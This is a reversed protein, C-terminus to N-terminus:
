SVYFAEFDNTELRWTSQHDRDIPKTPLEIVYRGEATRCHTELFHKEVQCEELYLKPKNQCKELEWFRKVHDLLEDNTNSVCGCFTAVSSVNNSSTTFKGAVIWGFLTERLVPLDNALTIQRSTWIDFFIEAGLLM